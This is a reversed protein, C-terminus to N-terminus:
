CVTNTNPKQKLMYSIEDSCHFERDSKLQRRRYLSPFCAQSKKRIIFSRKFSRNRLQEPSTMVNRKLYCKPNKSKEGCFLSCLDDIVTLGRYYTSDTEDESLLNCPKPHTLFYWNRPCLLIKEISVRGVSHFLLWLSLFLFIVFGFISSPM